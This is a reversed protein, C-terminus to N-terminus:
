EWQRGLVMGIFVRAIEPDFQAGACSKIEAIAAEESLKKKYPLDSTMADYADAISVIRAQISISGNKIGRPYGTGDPREHHEYVWDAIDSFENSSNLIRYGMEPHRQIEKREEETLAGPNNLIDQDIGIEGIDHMLGALRIQVTENKSFGMKTAIAECINGVRVSHIKENKNKEYLKNMMADITKHKLATSDAFKHRYMEDEAKVFIDNMNEALSTKVAYGMSLSMVVNKITESKLAKKIRDIIMDANNADTDPLFIVFEDGGIRAVIDRARCENKIVKAINELLLDGTNHGFVDNTLKLGNVDAMILTLPFYKENDLSKMANDFYRRNYLGTLQDHFSLYEIEKEAEKRSDINRSAGVIELNKDLGYRFKASIEVWVLSGDKCPQQVEIRFSYNENPDNFTKKAFGSVANMFIKYSEPTLSEKFNEQMAEESTLGRMQFVSSSVYTFKEEEMSFIWIVDSVNETLLRYKEESERIADEMQIRNSIDRINSSVHTVGNLIFIRSSFLGTFESGDKRRFITADTNFYGRKKLENVLTQREEPYKYLNLELTSKGIAEEPAYGALATFGENVNVILGDSIRTIISADPTTNFMSRFNEKAEIIEAQTRTREIVLGLQRTYLTAVNDRDFLDGAAMILTFDGLMVYNKTIKVLVVQGVKFTKELLTLIPKPVVGASIGNMSPFRTITHEKIKEARVPDKEWKKGELKFGLMDTAKKIIGKDGSIAKTTFSEGDEDFLNFVAYKAGSIKLFDDTVKQYNLEQENMQLFEESLLTMDKLASLQLREKTIDIFLTIFYFKAPSYVTVHYWKKLDESYQEFEKEGGNLAVDGYYAIWNFEDNAIGQLVQTVRKGIIKSSKLGTLNEFAANVEIFEYDCPLGAADCIIKHYSFGMPSKEILQKYFNEAMIVVGQEIISGPPLL